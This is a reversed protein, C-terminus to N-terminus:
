GFMAEDLEERTLRHLNATGEVTPPGFHRALASVIVDNMAQGTAAAQIQARELLHAPLELTLRM